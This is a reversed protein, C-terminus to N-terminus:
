IRQILAHVAYYDSGYKESNDSNESNLYENIIKSVSKRYKRSIDVCSLVKIKESNHLNSYIISELIKDKGYM